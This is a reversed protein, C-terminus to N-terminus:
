TVICRKPAGRNFNIYYFGDRPEWNKKLIDTCDYGPNFYEGSPSSGDTTMWAYVGNEEKCILLKDSNSRDKILKLLGREKKSCSGPDYGTQIDVSKIEPSVFSIRSILGAITLLKFCVSM